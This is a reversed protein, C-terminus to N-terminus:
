NARLLDIHQFKQNDSGRGKGQDTGGNGSIKRARLRNVFFRLDSLCRDAFRWNALSWDAFGWDAFGGGGEDCPASIAYRRGAIGGSPFRSPNQM